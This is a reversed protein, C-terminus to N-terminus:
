QSVHWRPAPGRGALDKEARPATSDRRWIVVALGLIALLSVLAGVRLGVSRFRFAVRHEGPPVQVAQFAESWREIPVPKGDLRAQWGPFLQEALAFRGGAESRVVFEQAEPEWGIRRVTDGSGERVWGYPPRAKAFEFVKYYTLSPELLRFDPNSSLRPYLPAEAATIFYRVGLVRLAAENAPDIDIEWNTRFHELTMMLKRYQTTLFPDFGQPTTLGYHRLETPFPGFLDLAIRYDSNSRLQSYVADNIEPFSAYNDRVLGEIANPWKSTGFVKYDVGVTLLLATVLGTRFVGRQAPLILIALSFLALTVAPEIASRWGSPFDSGIPFWVLMQRASWGAMLVITLLIFWGPAPRRAQRLYSDIGFAALPAAALTLGALFYWDRCIQALLDSHRIVGWVLGFPNTAAVLSVVLITLSPVLERWKRHRALLALGLFAPVGLYLYDGAWHGAPRHNMGFGFYNPLLYSLFEEPNRLGRGYRPEFTKLVTAERAPLLQVAAILLSVGLAGVVGLAVKWRWAAYSVICVAFVFWIPPYGALFCMASALAVKWLYRWRHEEIAQDIGWLGLPMWAIGAVLGLHQLQNLMYGSYAFVAAGLISALEALKKNRLWVYCLLFALWVHAFVLVQMSQYTLAPRGINAAFLLWTPPYFLAAQSNGAFSLGCYITPDWEPFRGHRLAQFAYDALPYHFGQLDYPIHVREFPPLYEMFFLYTFAFSLVAVTWPRIARNM